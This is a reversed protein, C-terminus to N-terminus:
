HAHEGRYYEFVWGVLALSSIGLGILIMWLGVAMLVGQALATGLIGIVVGRVTVSALLALRHGREGAIRDIAAHMRGIVADGDRFFFYAIFISLALQLIGGLM